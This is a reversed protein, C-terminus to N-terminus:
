FGANTAPIAWAIRRSRAAETFVDIASACVARAREVSNGDDNMSEYLGRYARVSESVTESLGFTPTWALQERAKQISITLVPADPVAQSPRQFTWTGEGWIELIRTALVELPVASAAAPGFNWGQAFSRPRSYQQQALWLYGSLPELVYQWPRIAEPHALVIPRGARLARISNPFIRHEAWDGGGLANGARVTAISCAGDHSFYSSRYAHVVLEAAAKSASYADDGGLPDSESFAQRRDLQAYCKDSTVIQCVRVSPCERVADLVAVTGMVNTEFTQSPQAFGTGVQSQAALHFVFEPQATAFVSQLQQRNSLSGRHSNLWESLRLLAYLNPQTPPDLAYGSVHAGQRCLWYALWAGKFGTHGTILVRKGRWFGADAPALLCENLRRTDKQMDVTTGVLSELM